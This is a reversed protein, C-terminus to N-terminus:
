FDINRYIISRHAIAFIKVIDSDVKYIVRYNGVRLRRYNKLAKRLPKGFKVPDTTLKTNVSEMIQLLWNKAIKKIDNKVRLDYEIKYYMKGSNM